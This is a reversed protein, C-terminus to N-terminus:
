MREPATVGLLALGNRLVVRTAEVLWLRARHLDTVAEDGRPLVRCVDYFRHYTGALEELYRAVRHPERLEAATAVVRPFEGLAGLLDGERDHDLLEPRFSHAAGRDVGLEGANRLLSAVRAHAYQVYYVPNDNTQRAWLDLDLDISSDTSFRALAYRAADVGIADVLDALTIVNGARKSMRVPVGDRVLSVLQGILVEVTQDPDDGFCAAVARLRGVYGHHDAGLMYICRDFGRVRKDLYYACDALFYTPEGNSRVLVRDRDDGFDTTRLWVAGDQDFVHGEARLRALADDLEGKAHLDKENFYVDFFVGFDALSNRIEAFMLDVGAVRFAEQATADDYTLIDPQDAVVQAAIDDIYAGAYGDEPVQEGRAAALLSRAFRDIQSGADNFYYERTVEAGAADLVRGLADGVAAWRIAGIHVPGTPNASVFELNIRQKALTDTRGYDEGAEVVTRALEGQAASDLTINLFGPGAVDVDAIGATARLRTAVAEAVERPPLGAPRALQLAVSTAYDGHAKARPREVKVQEPVSVPLDGAQVADRVADRVAASLEAPTV